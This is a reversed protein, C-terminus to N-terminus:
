KGHKISLIKGDSKSITAEAVGGLKHPSLYGYVHWIGDKLEARYPKERAIQAEGYVPVWAAVAVAIATKEDLVPGAAARPVAEKEACGALSILMFLIAALLKM